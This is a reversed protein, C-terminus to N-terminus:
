SAWAVAFILLSTFGAVMTLILVSASVTFRKISAARTREDRGASGEVNSSDRGAFVFLTPANRAGDHSRHDRQSCHLSRCGALREVDGGASVCVRLLGGCLSWRLWGRLFVTGFLRAVERRQTPSLRRLRRIFDLISLRRLHWFLTRRSHRDNTERDVVVQDGRGM